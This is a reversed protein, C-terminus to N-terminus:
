RAGYGRALLVASVLMGLLLLLQLDSIRAIRPGRTALEMPPLTGRRSAIRWRILTVMPWLELLLIVVLLGMKAYFVHNTMYYGASKEMSGFWRWLGTSIALLASIGWWNDAAFTASLTEPGDKLRHASRARVFVGGFAIALALLHLVALLIRM